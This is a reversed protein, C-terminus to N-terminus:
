GRCLWIIAVGAVGSVVGAIRLRDAPTNLIETAIRRAFQPWGALVIGELALVLGLAVLLETM